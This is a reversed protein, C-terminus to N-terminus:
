RENGLASRRDGVDAHEISPRSKRRGRAHELRADAAAATRELERLRTASTPKNAYVRARYLALRDRHYRAEVGLMDLKQDDVRATTKPARPASPIAASPIAAVAAPPGDHADRRATERRMLRRVRPFLSSRSPMAPSETSSPPM